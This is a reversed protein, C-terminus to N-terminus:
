FLSLSVGFQFPILQISEKNKFLPFLSYSGYIAWNRIGFRLHASASFHNFDSFGVSKNKDSYKGDHTILTMSPNFAYSAKAGIHFKAHKWNKGRLRWEIPVALQHHKFHAQDINYANKDLVLETRKLTENRVLFDNMDVKFLGYQFGIGFSSTNGKTLPIDWMTSINMGISFPRNQFPQQTKSHWDNYTVDLILRDYKRVKEDPAKNIGHYFWMFGPRYRTQLQDDADQSFGFGAVFLTFTLLKYLM